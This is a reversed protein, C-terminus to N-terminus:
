DKWIPVGDIHVVSAAVRVCSLHIPLCLSIHVLFVNAFLKGPAQLEQNGEHPYCQVCGLRARWMNM